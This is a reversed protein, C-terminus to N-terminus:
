AADAAGRLRLYALTWAVAVYPTVTAGEVVFAAFTGPGPELWALPIALAPAVALALVVSMLVMAFVNSSHGAAIARSRRLAAIAPAGELVAVPAAFAWWALLVLGPLVVVALGAVVGAAALISLGATTGARGLGARLAEGAPADRGERISEVAPATVAQLVFCGALWVVAAAVGGARSDLQIASLGLAAAALEVVLAVPVLLRWCRAYLRWAEGFIGTLEGV